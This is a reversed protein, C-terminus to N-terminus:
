VVLRRGGRSVKHMFIIVLATVYVVIISALQASTVWSLKGTKGFLGSGDRKKKYEALHMGLYRHGKELALQPPTLGTVDKFTLVSVSGGQQLPLATLIPSPQIRDHHSMNDNLPYSQSIQFAKATLQMAESVQLLVTCAEGNGKIAAWHLPTCGEKDAVDYRSDLVLLLRITDAYGKYAAWHLPTRGDNDPQDM